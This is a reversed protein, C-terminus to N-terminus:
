SPAFYESFFSRIVWYQPFHYQSSKYIFAQSHQFIYGLRAGLIGSISALFVLNSIHSPPVQFRESHRESMVLGIWIGILIVLGSTPFAAPGIQVTPYM